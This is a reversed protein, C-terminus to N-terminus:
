SCYSVQVGLENSLMSKDVNNRLKQIITAFQDKYRNFLLIKIVTMGTASIFIMADSAVDINYSHERFYICEPLLICATALFWFLSYLRYTLTRSREDYRLGIFDLQSDIDTLIEMTNLRGRDVTLHEVSAGLIYQPPMSVMLPKKRGKQFIIKTVCVVIILLVYGHRFNYLM